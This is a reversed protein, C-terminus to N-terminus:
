CRGVIDQLMLYSDALLKIHLLFYCHLLLQQLQTYYYTTIILLTESNVDEVEWRALFGPVM